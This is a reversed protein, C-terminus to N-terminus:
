GYLVLIVGPLSLLSDVMFDFAHAAIPKSPEPGVGIFLGALRLM